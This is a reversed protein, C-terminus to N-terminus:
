IRVGKGELPTRDTVVDCDLVPAPKPTVKSKTNGYCDTVNENDMVNKTASYRQRLEYLPHPSFYKFLESDPINTVKNGKVNEDTVSDSVRLGNDNNAKLSINGQSPYFPPHQTLYRDFTDSFQDLEYGKATGYGIRVTKSYIGYPKLKNALQRPTLQEGRNYTLWSKEDDSVLAKILDSTSIKLIGKTEFIEQIDGLLETTVSHHSETTKFIRLAANLATDPWHEGAVAAVQLLPEINDQDRDGLEDPLHPRAQRVEDSYDLAFRALKSKLIGFLEPEAYRLRTIEEGPKKRRLEFVISRSTVTEALKVANIGAIAKMGWIKFKKVDFDDGVAVSRIVYASDRTHGANLLGRLDENDKLVTEIEDIFLTPQYKEIVRFLASPSIGSLQAARPALKNLVTLLQTKGCGKEPANILAIPATHIENVFYCASVWLAALDAQHKDAVIFRRITASIDDLLQAPNIPESYHEIDPFPEDESNSANRAKTVEKDLVGVRVNLQKAEEERVQDYEMPRLTSLRQVAETVTENQKAADQKAKERYEKRKADEEAPETLYEEYCAPTGIVEGRVGCIKMVNSKKNKSILATVGTVGTKKIESIKKDLFEAGKAASQDLYNRDITM